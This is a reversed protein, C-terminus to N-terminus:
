MEQVTWRQLPSDQEYPKVSVFRKKYLNTNITLSKKGDNMWILQRTFQSYAFSGARANTFRNFCSKLKLRGKYKVLCMNDNDRAHYQGLTDPRWLQKTNTTCPHMRIPTNPKLSSAATICWKQDDHEHDSIIKYSSECNKDSIVKSELSNGYWYNTSLRETVVENVSISIGGDASFSNNEFTAIYKSCKLCLRIHNFKNSELNSRAYVTKGSLEDQLTWYISDATHESYHHLDFTTLGESCTKATPCNDGTSISTTNSSFPGNTEHNYSQILVDNVMLTYGEDSLIGDGFIDTISFLYDSCPLCFRFSYSTLPNHDEGSKIVVSTKAETFKWSTESGYTDTQLLFEVKMEDEACTLATPSVTPPATYGECMVPKPESHNLCIVQEIWAYASSTRAWVGPHSMGCGFGWSTVGAVVNNKADYLPGGSDGQCADKGFEGACMMADRIERGFGYKIQCVDQEVYNLVVDKLRSPRYYAGYYEVGFGIAILETQNTYGPSYSKDVRVPTIESTQNLRVLAFDNDLTADSYEPHITVSKITAAEFAQGCNDNSSACLAGIYLTGVLAEECHAATLVYEPSILMGGCGDFAVFWPYTDKEVDTGGVIRTPAEHQKLDKPPPTRRRDPQEDESLPPQRREDTNDAQAKAQVSSLITWLLITLVYGLKGM